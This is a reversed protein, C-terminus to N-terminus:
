DPCGLICGKPDLTRINAGVTVAVLQDRSSDGVAIVSSSVLETSTSVKKTKRRQSM